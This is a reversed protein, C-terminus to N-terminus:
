DDSMYQISSTDISCKAAFRKFGEPLRPSWGITLNPEPAPGLNYLTNLIRFSTKTMLTRGDEGMGAIFETVWTPDGSFLQNYEPTRLFRVIRFKIVLDDILEQAESETLKGEQLDRDLYIDLFSSIRGVSMAAGNQEKIAALYAFYTWQVAERGTTAPNSVDYGYRAAMEKIARLSKLQESLEERLRIVEETAHREDLEVRERQKDAILFDLGYLALRRYDGIIRGRGYADPLGTIIGSSRCKRIEPTYADFVGDNHTKVYETFIKRIEPDPEFGYAKLSAEVMRWGGKPMIARKLPADTQLGVILELDKDIYGPAHALISSPEQSVALVGKKGEEALLPLLTEWVKQTRETAGALFSADGEYPTYNRQIFDRVNVRSCWPGPKFGHWAKDRATEMEKPNAAM